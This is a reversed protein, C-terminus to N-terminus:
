RGGGETVFEVVKSGVEIGEVEVMEFPLLDRGILAKAIWHPIQAEREIACDWMMEEENFFPEEESRLMMTSGIERIIYTKM